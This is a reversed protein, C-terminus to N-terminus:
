RYRRGTAMPTHAVRGCQDAVIRLQQGGYSHPRGAWMSGRRYRRSTATPRWLLTPSGGVNIRASIASKYSNATAPTHAVRGCQDETAAFFSPLDGERRQTCGPANAPSTSLPSPMLTGDRMADPRAGHLYHRESRVRRSATAKTGLAMKNAIPSIGRLTSRSKQLAVSRRQWQTGNRVMAHWQTGNRAM